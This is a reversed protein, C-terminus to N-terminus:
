VGMVSTNVVRSCPDHVRAGTWVVRIWPGRERVFVPLTYRGKTGCHKSLQYSSSLVVDTCSFFPPKYRLSVPPCRKVFLVAHAQNLMNVSSMCTCPPGFLWVM